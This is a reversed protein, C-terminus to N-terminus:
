AAEQYLRGNRVLWKEFEVAALMLVSLGLCIVLEGLSLPATNFVRNLAPLYLIALQVCITLLVSLLLPLNTLLGIRFLSERESRLGLVLFMQSLALVTFAMSQWHASGTHYAGAQALITLAAVLLGAWIIRQWMGHAFISEGPSRPPRQMVGPEAPEMALALGPLGDTVLNVWLIHIPMLPIPLGLFPALFITWIEGSNGTLAFRIFKRINDYIRRGERVAAVITAFNDDLLVMDAAERTVDTGTRGMAIGIDAQKVAPADNVGDGTMAVFQRRAQLARVIKIKQEPDVRAYVRISEVQQALENEALDKLAQGTLVPGDKPLIGLRTAIAQATVPHDGTIMVPTIGATQCLAVADKAEPRPPDLMGVLGLFTLDAEDREPDMQQPLSEWDRCAFALVRWGSAAMQGAAELLHATHHLPHRGTATLQHSCQSIVTEPAGKTYAIFRGDLRHFTTMRKRESEFPIEDVRPLAQELAMKDFGAQWAAAYLATETPDGIFRGQAQRVADNNLTMAQLLHQWAPGAPATAPMPRHLHGDVYIAEVQMQNQTLTGTKDSCIYTVSGLTEVAPLRRVLAHTKAMRRAGLALSVTVVAPLAEPVAAVALSVATLFMLPAPEGRLIGATFIIASIVLVALGLRRSFHALRQQLPTKLSEAQGLLMAIRGLETAMGTATIVGRSRGNVVTTGKYAMNRRDGLPLDEEALPATHKEVALSEGTLVAEEVKLQSAELLRLDAPVINGAELLVIDGPVLGAQPIVKVQGERLVRAENQAMRRLMAIAREARYEQIFGVVANLLVILLIIITDKLDGVIGSIVAAAILIVILFDTFQELLLRAPGRRRAEKLENPGFRQRRRFAEGESLGMDPSTGQAALADAASLRFWVPRDPPDQAKSQAHHRM